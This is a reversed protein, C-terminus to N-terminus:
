QHVSLNNGIKVMGLHNIDKYMDGQAYVLSNERSNIGLFLIELDYIHVGEINSSILFVCM